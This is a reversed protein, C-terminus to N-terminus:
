ISRLHHYYSWTKTYTLINKAMLYTNQNSIWDWNVKRTHSLVLEECISHTKWDCDWTLCVQTCNLSGNAQKPNWEYSLGGFIRRSIVMVKEPLKLGIELDYVQLTHNDITTKCDNGLLTKTKWM